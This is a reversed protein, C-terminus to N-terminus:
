RRKQENKSRPGYWVLTCGSVSHEITHSCYPALSYMNVAEYAQVDVVDSSCPLHVGTHVLHQRGSMSALMEKAHAADDPKELVVGDLDVVQVVCRHSTHM